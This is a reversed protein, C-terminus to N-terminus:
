ILRLTHRAVETEMPSYSHWLSFPLQMHAQPDSMSFYGYLSFSELYLFCM